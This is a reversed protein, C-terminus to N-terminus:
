HLHSFEYVNLTRVYFILRVVYRLLSKNGYLLKMVNHYRLPWIAYKRWASHLLGQVSNANNTKLTIDNLTDWCILLNKLAIEYGTPDNRSVCVRTGDQRVIVHKGASPIITIKNDRLILSIIIEPVFKKYIASDIIYSVLNNRILSLTMGFCTASAVWYIDSLAGFPWAWDHTLMIIENNNTIKNIDKVINDFSDSESDLRYRIIVDYSQKTKDATSICLEYAKNIGYLMWWMGKVSAQLHQPLTAITKIISEPINIKSQDEVLYDTPNLLHIFHNELQKDPEYDANRWTGESMDQTTWTHIFIDANIEDKFTSRLFDNTLSISRAHGTLLVALKPSCCDTKLNSLSYNM